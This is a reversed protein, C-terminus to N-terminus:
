FQFYIFPSSVTPSLFLLGLLVFFLVFLGVFTDLKFYVYRKLKVGIFHSIIILPLSIVLSTSIWDVGGIDAIFFMKKLITLSVSFDSSRFFVWAICVFILTVLWSFFSYVVTEKKSHNKFYDMYIKHFALGIGHLGGWVVFNWSAGHWLGGLLMVLMLNIYQRIKGKRNGGLSIYLYEKLWTSLSIHWRRWFETINKSVYPMDFNKPIDFGLIKASGIAMDTYGSFDCYIQIAYAFVALWITLSSYNNPNQFVPDVFMALNDAILVKKALGFVFIQVGQEVNKWKIVIEKQLQPLFHKPKLIPGAILHPFFAVLLALDWFSNPTKNTKRYIDITYSMVEFVIFSIGVPLIIDLLPFRVGINDLMTNASNIFFNFYKFFGLVILNFIVSIIVWNKRNKKDDEAHEIKLGFYYNALIMIFLLIVFRYDWYSYFYFSAILLFAKKINNSKVLIMFLLVVAFFVLYEVSSFIM